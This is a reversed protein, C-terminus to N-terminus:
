GTRRGLRKTTNKRIKRPKPGTPTFDGARLWHDGDTDIKCGLDKLRNAFEHRSSDSGSLRLIHMGSIDTFPKVDGIQVIVTKRHHTGIAIGTEFIVNPRAQGQIKGETTREQKTVFQKRLTVDDDPSLVVVIAQAQEMIKTVADNVYPNSGKRKAARIAHGWEQAKLGLAGLLDYTADRLKTDRGHVVFVTNEKTKPAKTTKRAVARVSPSVTVPVAAPAHHPIGRLDVLDQETAYKQISINSDGALLLAGLHRPVRNKASIEQILAYVRAKTVGLKTALRELLAQNIKAM